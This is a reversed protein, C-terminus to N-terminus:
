EQFYADDESCCKAKQEVFMMHVMKETIKQSFLIFDKVLCLEALDLTKTM